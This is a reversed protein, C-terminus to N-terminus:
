RFDFSSLKIASFSLTGIITAFIIETQFNASISDSVVSLCIIEFKFSFQGTQEVLKFVVPIPTEASIAFEIM